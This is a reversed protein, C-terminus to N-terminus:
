FCFEATVSYHVNPIFHPGVQPMVNAHVVAKQKGIHFEVGGGVYFGPIIIPEEQVIEYESAEASSKHTTLLMAYGGFRAIPKVKGSGFSLKPGVNLTSSIGKYNMNVEKGHSSGSWLTEKMDNSYTAFSLGLEMYTGKRIRHLPIEAGAGVGIPTVYDGGGGVFYGSAFVKFLIKEKASKETSEYVTFATVDSGMEEHFKRAISILKDKELYIGRIEAMAKPSDKVFYRLQGVERQANKKELDGYHPHYPYKTYITTEGNENEFIYYAEANREVLYLDMKGQVIYEAFAVVNEGNITFSRTVYYKGNHDFRFGLIEGPVYTHYQSNEDCFSCEKALIANTNFDLKGHIENGQLDIIYGDFANHQAFSSASVVAFVALLLLKLPKMNCKM